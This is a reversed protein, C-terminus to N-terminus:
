RGIINLIVDDSEDTFGENKGNRKTEPQNWLIMLKM